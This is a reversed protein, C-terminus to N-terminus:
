GAGPLSNLFPCGVLARLARSLGAVDDVPRSFPLRVDADGDGGEVRLRIGYRDIGLPRLRGQRLNEPLHRALQGVLDGHDNDLHSLWHAEFEWFPDPGVATLEDAPVSAAGSSTAIVATSIQLRLMAAGHGIDLLGDHPHDAAIEIALERELDGPVLHLVGNLWILSRVRERLAIPACDAIELVAPVGQASIVHPDALHSPVLVFAQGDFLHVMSVAMPETPGGPGEAALTAGDVNMCATRIAEADSPRGATQHM